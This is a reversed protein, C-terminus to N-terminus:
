KKVQKRNGLLKSCKKMPLSNLIKLDLRRFRKLEAEKLKHLDDKTIVQELNETVWNQYKERSVEINKIEPLTELYQLIARAANEGDKRAEGM